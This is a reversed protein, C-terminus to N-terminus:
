ASGDYVGTTRPSSVMPRGVEVHAPERWFPLKVVTAPYRKARIQVGLTTGPTALATELYVDWLNKDDLKAIKDDPSYISVFFGTKQEAEKLNSTIYQFYKGLRTNFAHMFEPSLYTVSLSYVSEFSDIVDIKRTADKL